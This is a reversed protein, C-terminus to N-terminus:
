AYPANLTETHYDLTSASTSAGSLPLDTSIHVVEPDSALDAVASAPMAYAAAQILALERKLTGGRSLVKQHHRATPPATFQVIVNVTGEAPNQLDPSLKPNQAAAVTVLALLVALLCLKSKM